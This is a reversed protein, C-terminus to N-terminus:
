KCTLRSNCTACVVMSFVALKYIRPYISSVTLKYIRFISFVTLRASSTMNRAEPIHPRAGSHARAQTLVGAHTCAVCYYVNVILYRCVIYIFSVLIPLVVCINLVYENQNSRNYMLFCM